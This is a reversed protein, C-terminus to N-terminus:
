DRKSEDEQGHEVEKGEGVAGSSMAGAGAGAGASARLSRGDPGLPECHFPVPGDYTSYFQPELRLDERDVVLDCRSLAAHLITHIELRALIHGACKRKGEIFPFYADNRTPAREPNHFPHSKPLFRGPDFSNPDPWIDPRHHVAHMMMMIETGPPMVKGQIEIPEGNLRPCVLSVNHMRACENFIATQVPLNTKKKNGQFVDELRPAPTPWSPEGEKRRPALVQRWEDRLRELWVKNEPRSLRFFMGVMVFAAAKHAGYIHNVEAAVEFPTLDTGILQSIFDLPLVGRHRDGGGVSPSSPKGVKEMLAKREAVMEDTIRRITGAERHMQYCLGLVGCVGDAQMAVGKGYLALSRSLEKSRDSAPDQGYGFRLLAGMSVGRCAELLDPGGSSRPALAVKGDAATKSPAAMVQTPKADQLVGLNSTRGEMWADTHRCAERYCDDGFKSIHSGQFVAHLAQRRKAWPEGNSTLVGANAPMFMASYYYVRSRTAAHEEKCMLAQCLEPDATMVFGEIEATWDFGKM